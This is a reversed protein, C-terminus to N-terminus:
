AVSRASLRVDQCMSAMLVTSAHGSYHWGRRNSCRSVRRQRLLARPFGIMGRQARDGIESRDISRDLSGSATGSEGNVRRIREKRHRGAALSDAIQSITSMTEGHVAGKAVHPKVVKSYWPDSLRVVTDGSGPVAADVSSRVPDTVGGGVNRVPLSRNCCLTPSHDTIPGIM